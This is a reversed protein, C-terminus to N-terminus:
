PPRQYLLEGGLQVWRFDSKVNLLNESHGLLLYGGPVLREYLFQVVRRRYGPEFYILVNRCFICDMLPLQKVKGLDILNVHGFIVPQTLEPRVKMREPSVREFHRAQREASTVRLAAPGYDARRAIGLARRSIDTAHVTVSWDGFLGSEKLMMVLTYPEEGTSCGASWLRLQQSAGKAEHLAPLVQRAFTDLQLPERFFYTERTLLVDLAAEMEEHGSPDSQLFRHYAAFDKLGLVELRVGLRREVIFKLEPQFLLGCERCFLEQLLRFDEASM